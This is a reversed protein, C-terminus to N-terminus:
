RTGWGASYDQEGFHVGSRKPATGAPGRGAAAKTLWALPETIEEREVQELLTIVELDGVDKRLKGLFSRAAKETAGRAKLLDLGFGFIRDASPASAGATPPIDTTETSSSASASSPGDGKVCGSEDGIPPKPSDKPQEKPAGDHQASQEKGPYRSNKGRQHRVHEDRVMRSSFWIPGLQAEILTVPEGNQGAHRPTYVYAECLGRDTGKLVKKDALEKLLKPPCGISHAIESLPWRLLGYEDSDHMLGIVEIWAGRAEWSCRRLNASSRWDAPYWQLSPRLM